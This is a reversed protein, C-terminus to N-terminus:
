HSMTLWSESYAVKGAQRARRAGWRYRPKPWFGIRVMMRIVTGNSPALYREGARKRGLHFCCRGSQMTLLLPGPPWFLHSARGGQTRLRPPRDSPPQEAQVPVTARRDALQATARRQGVRSPPASVRRPREGSQPCAIPTDFHLKTWCPDLGRKPGNVRADAGCSTAVNPPDGPLREVSRQHRSAADHEDRFPSRAHRNTVSVWPERRGNTWSSPSRPTVTLRTLGVAPL